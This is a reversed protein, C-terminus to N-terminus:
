RLANQFAELALHLRLIDHSDLAAQLAEALGQLPRPLPKLVTEAAMRLEHAKKRFIDEEEQWRAEEKLFHSVESGCSASLALSRKQGGHEADVHLQANEDLSFSVSVQVTGAQQQPLDAIEFRALSICDSALPREGQLVHFSMATQCFAGTVYTCTARAPIPANRPILVDVGGGLIELGLSLPAVDLLVHEAFSTSLARAQVSAGLAVAHDPHADAYVVDPNLAEQVRARVFPSWTMGGVFVLGKLRVGSERVVSLAVALTRDVFPALVGHLVSEMVGCVIPAHTLAERVARPTHSGTHPAFAADVDEGGLFRNGGTALIRFLAGSRAVVSFDFTGGGWDYVGFVGDPVNSCLAAATPEHLLRLVQLGAESAARQTALRAGEEFHAPVTIVAKTVPRGLLAEAQVRLRSLIEASMSVASRTRGDNPQGMLRKFAGVGDVISPIAPGLLRPGSADAVAILSYTTGLDIGVAMGNEM